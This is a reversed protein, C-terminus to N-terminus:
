KVERTTKTNEFWGIWTNIWNTLDTNDSPQQFPAYHNGWQLNGLGYGGHKRLADDAGAQRAYTQIADSDRYHAPDAESGVGDGQMLMGLLDLETSLRTCSADYRTRTINTDGPHYHNMLLHLAQWTSPNYFYPRGLRKGQARATNRNKEDEPTSRCSLPNQISRMHEKYVLSACAVSAAASLFVVTREDRDHVLLGVICALCTLVLALLLAEQMKCIHCLFVTM